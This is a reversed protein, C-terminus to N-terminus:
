SASSTTNWMQGTIPSTRIGGGMPQHSGCKSRMGLRRCRSSPACCRNRAASTSSLGNSNASSRPESHRCRRSTAKRRDLSSQIVFLAAAGSSCLLILMWWGMSPVAPRVRAREVLCAQLGAHIHSYDAKAIFRATAPDLIQFGAGRWSQPDRTLRVSIATVTDGPVIPYCILRPAAAAAEAAIGRPRVGDM